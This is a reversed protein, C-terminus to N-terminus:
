PLVVACFDCKVDIMMLVFCKYWPVQRNNAVKDHGKGTGGFAELSGSEGMDMFHGLADWKGDPGTSGARPWFDCCQRQM